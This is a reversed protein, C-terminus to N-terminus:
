AADQHYKGEIVKAWNTPNVLWELEIVFPRNGPATNARGTLFKSQGVYAFLKRFYALGAAQDPWRKEEATERWRARLHDARAGKWQKPLHQPMSPLVDAWLSLVDLHPCDPPSWAKPRGGEVLTLQPDDSRRARDVEDSTSSDQKQEQEQKQEQNPLGESLTESPNEDPLPDLALVEGWDRMFARLWSTERPVSTAIKGASKRQNPNEPPNWELHKVVWVWKTTECRNAFGKRFLEAFGKQVRELGWGLDESVYGDPLRFVGAITSHSCTMLYLALVKGDDSMGSTTASSWFTSYVKGYDRM